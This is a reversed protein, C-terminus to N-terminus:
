ANTLVLSPSLLSEFLSRGDTNGLISEAAREPHPMMGFVNRGENCIGAIHKMSGNPNGEDNLKGDPTCYEFLIQKNRELQRMTKDDTYFRGEAHAIPMMLVENKELGRTIPSNTNSVRLHINRCIFKRSDNHLLVGPLLGSECLIQFGNCIGWVLGGRNAHEIVAKMIPSLKAIAGSRVYDGYSFGGPLVICDDPGLDGLHTQKHWLKQVNQGMVTGLVHMMDDDCNSGPFVVVGFNMTRSKNKKQAHGSRKPPQPMTSFSTGSAGLACRDRAIPNAESMGTHAHASDLLSAHVFGV